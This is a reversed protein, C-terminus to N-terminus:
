CVFNRGLLRVKWLTLTSDSAGTVICDEKANVALAWVTADDDSVELSKVCESTKVNWLKM